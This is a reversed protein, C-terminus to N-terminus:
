RSGQVRARKGFLPHGHLMPDQDCVVVLGAAAAQRGQQGHPAVLDLFRHVALVRQLPRRAEPGVDDNRVHDHRHDVPDPQELGQGRRDRLGRDDQEGGVPGDLGRHRRHALPGVVVHGLRHVGAPQPDQHLLRHLLDLDITLDGDQPALELLRTPEPRQQAHAGRHLLDVPQDLHGRRARRRHQDQALGARALLQDRAGDVLERLPGLPREHRHVARRDRLRQELALQEAVLLPGEGARHRPPGAVELQGVAAGDEEVLDGLHARVQLRLVQAHQLVALHPPDAAM